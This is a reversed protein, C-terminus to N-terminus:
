PAVKKLIVIFEDGIAFGATDEPGIAVILKRVGPDGQEKAPALGAMGAVAGAPVRQLEEVTMTCHWEEGPIM